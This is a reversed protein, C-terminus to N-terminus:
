KKVFRAIADRFVDTGMCRVMAETEAELQAAAPTHSAQQVLKKTLLIAEPANRALRAAMAATAAELQDAPVVQNVLGLALAQQATLSDTALFLELAKRAGVREVIGISGGGDPTVGLKNYATTFKANDAAICIDGLAALSFGAGAAAGHVSTLVIYPGDRLALLFRNLAGLLERVMPEIDDLHAVFCRIDGGACFAPGNGRVVVVRIDSSATIRAALSELYRAEDLGIANFAQPRNLTLTAVAGEIELLASPETESM